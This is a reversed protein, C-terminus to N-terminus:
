ASEALRRDDDTQYQPSTDRAQRTDGGDPNMAERKWSEDDSWHRALDIVEGPTTFQELLGLSERVISYQDESDFPKGTTHGLPYDVFAARPPKGAKIIDLASAVVLTTIGLAELHRAILSV